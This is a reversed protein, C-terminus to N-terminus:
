LSVIIYLSSYEHTKPFYSSPLPPRVYKQFTKVIKKVLFRFQNQVKKIFMIEWSKGHGGHMFEM